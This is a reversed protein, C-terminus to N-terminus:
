TETQLLENQDEKFKDIYGTSEWNRSTSKKTCSLDLEVLQSCGDLQLVLHKFVSPLLRCSTIWVIRVNRSFRLGNLPITPDSEDTEEEEDGTEDDIDLLLDEVDFDIPSYPNKPKDWEKLEPPLYDDDTMM